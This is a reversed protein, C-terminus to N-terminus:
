FLKGCLGTQCVRFKGPGKYDGLLRQFPSGKGSLAKKLGVADQKLQPAHSDPSDNWHPVLFSKGDNPLM